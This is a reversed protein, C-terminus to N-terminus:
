SSYFFFLMSPTFIEMKVNSTPVHIARISCRADFEWSNLVVICMKIICEITNLILIDWYELASAEIAHLVDIRVTFEGGRHHPLLKVVSVGASSRHLICEKSGTARSRQFSPKSLTGGM